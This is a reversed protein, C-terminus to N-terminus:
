IRRCNRSGVKQDYRHPAPISFKWTILDEFVYGSRAQCNEFKKVKGGENFGIQKGFCVACDPNEEMIKVQLALKHIPWYDDSAVICIYKGQSLEIGENLTAPLGLNESHFVYKFSHKELLNEIVKVSNDSSSDDIVILEFQFFTQNMVSEITKYIYESHNFSPIIVSVLPSIDKDIKTEM